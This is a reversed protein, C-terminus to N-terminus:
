RAPWGPTLLDTKNLLLLDAQALQRMVTDGVYRDGAASRVTEADMLVVVGEVSIEALLSVTQAVAGPM